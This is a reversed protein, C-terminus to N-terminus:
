KHRIRLSFAHGGMARWSHVVSHSCYQTLMMSLMLTEKTQMSNWASSNAWNTLFDVNENKWDAWRHRNRFTDQLTVTSRSCCNAVYCCRRGSGCFLHIASSVSGWIASIGSARRMYYTGRTTNRTKRLMLLRQMKWHMRSSLFFEVWLMLIFQYLSELYIGEVDKLPALIDARCVWFRGRWFQWWVSLYLLYFFFAEM